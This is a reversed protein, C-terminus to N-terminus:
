EVKIHAVNVRTHPALDVSKGNVSLSTGLANGVTVNLPPKAMLFERNGAFLTKSYIEKGSADVVNIWTEQTANFELKSNGAEAVTPAPPQVENSAPQTLTTQIPVPAVAGNAPASESGASAAPTAPSPTTSPAASQNPLAVSTTVQTGADVGGATQAESSPATYAAAREGAPLAVEPLAEVKPQMIDTTPKVPSPKQVYSQYFFWILVSILLLIGLSIYRMMDTKEYHKIPMKASPQLTFSQPTKDPVMVVYADLMPQPSLKLLKAYNRIFGKVITPEPLAEFHDNELAEIQKPSLRLQSAVESISMGSNERASRLAGGCRSRYEVEQPTNLKADSAISAPQELSTPENVTTSKSKRAM